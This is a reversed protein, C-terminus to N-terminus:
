APPICSIELRLHAEGRGRAPHRAGHTSGLVAAFECTSLKKRGLPRTQHTFFCLLATLFPRKYLPSNFFQEWVGVPPDSTIGTGALPQSSISERGLYHLANCKPPPLPCLHKKGFRQLNKRNARESCFRSHHSRLPHSFQQSVQTIHHM